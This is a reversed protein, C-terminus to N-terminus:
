ALYTASGDVKGGAVWGVGSRLPYWEYGDSVTATPPDAIVEVKDGRSVQDIRAQDLGPGQRVNLKSAKVEKKETGLQEYEVLVDAVERGYQGHLEAMRTGSGYRLDELMDAGTAGSRIDEIVDAGGEGVGTWGSLYYEDALRYGAAATDITGEGVFMRAKRETDAIARGADETARGSSIQKWGAAYQDWNRGMTAGADSLHGKFYGGLALFGAGVADGDFDGEGLRELFLAQADSLHKIAEESRDQEMREADSGEFYINRDSDENFLNRVFNKIVKM